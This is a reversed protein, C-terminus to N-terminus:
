NLEYDIQLCAFQVSPDALAPSGDACAAVGGAQQLANIYATRTVEAKTMVTSEDLPTLGPVSGITSGGLGHLPLDIAVVAQCSKQALLIAPLMSVSRDVTIGHQFITIGNPATPDSCANPREIEATDGDELSPLFVVVPVTTDAQKEPFPFNGNM